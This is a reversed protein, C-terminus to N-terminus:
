SNREILAKWSIEAYAKASNRPSDSKHIGSGVIIGDSGAMIVDYPDGYQQGLEGKGVDINVGPTWIMQSTGVKDRLSRIANPNSGNGIYGVVIKKKGIGLNIVSDSYESSLLNGRSSMQALLFVGGKREVDDWATNIGEVVDPGSILHSTVLDAWTNIAYIGGMQDRSIKGIDAFKRDEFLLVNKGKALTVLDMWSEYSWDEILDVHTKVVAVYEGVEDILESLSNMTKKDAALILLSQKQTALEMYRKSIINSSSDWRDGWVEEPQMMGQSYSNYTLSQTITYIIELWLYDLKDM